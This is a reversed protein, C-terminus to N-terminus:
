KDRQDPRIEEPLSARTAIVLRAISWPRALGLERVEVAFGYQRLLAEVAPLLFTLYYMIFSPSILWNRIHMAANFLRSLWYHPSHIPPMYSTLFVFRGGPKLVRAVEGVFGPEEEPLIHGFAGFSV